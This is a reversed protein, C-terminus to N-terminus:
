HFRNARLIEPAEARHALELAVAHSLATAGGIDDRGLACNRVPAPVWLGSQRYQAVSHSWRCEGRGVAATPGPRRRSSLKNRNEFYGRSGETFGFYIGVWGAGCSPRIM